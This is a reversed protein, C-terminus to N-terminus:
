KGFIKLLEVILKILEILKALDIGDLIGYALAQPLTVNGPELKAVAAAPGKFGTARNLGTAISRLADSFQKPTSLAGSAQLTTLADGLSVRWNAWSARDAQTALVADTAAKVAPLANATTITGNAVGDAVLSYVSSLAAGTTLSGGSTLAARTIREVEAEFPSPAPPPTPNPNPTPIPVPAPAPGLPISPMPAVTIRGDDAVHVKLYHTGKTLNTLVLEQAGARGPPLLLLGVAILGVIVRTDTLFKRAAHLITTLLTFLVGDIVGQEQLDPLVSDIVATLVAAAAATALTWGISRWDIDALSFPKSGTRNVQPM